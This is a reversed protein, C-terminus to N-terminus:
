QGTKTRQLAPSLTQIYEADQRNKTIGHGKCVSCYLLFGPVIFLIVSRSRKTVDFLDMSSLCVEGCLNRKIVKCFNLSTRATFCEFIKLSFYFLMVHSSSGNPRDNFIVGHISLCSVSSNPLFLCTKKNTLM